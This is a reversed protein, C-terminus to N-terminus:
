SHLSIALEGNCTPTNTKGVIEYLDESPSILSPLQDDSPLTAKVEVRNCNELSSVGNVTQGELPIKILHVKAVQTSQNEDKNNEDCEDIGNTAIAGNEDHSVCLDGNVAAVSEQRIDCNVGFINDEVESIVAAIKASDNELVANNVLQSECVGGDNLKKVREAVVYQAKTSLAELCVPVDNLTSPPCLNLKFFQEIMEPTHSLLKNQQVKKRDKKTKKCGKSAKLWEEDDDTKKLLVLVKGDDEIETQTSEALSQDPVPATPTLPYSGMLRQLYTTLTNCLRQKALLPDVKEKKWYGSTEQCVKHSSDERSMQNSEKRKISSPRRQPVSQTKVQTTPLTPLLKLEAIVNRKKVHLEDLEQRLIEIHMRRETNEKKIKDEKSKLNSVGRHLTERENRMMRQRDRIRDLDERLQLYEKLNKKSRKLRDIEQVIKKEELVKYNNTELQVQLRRIAENLAEETRYQLSGQLKMLQDRKTTMDNNLALVDADIKKRDNIATEKENRIEKLMQDNETVKNKEQLLQDKEQISKKLNALEEDLRQREGTSSASGHRSLACHARTKGDKNVSEM